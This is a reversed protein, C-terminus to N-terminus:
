TEGEIAEAFEEITACDVAQDLLANLKDRDNVTQLHASVADPVSTFRKNLLRLINERSAQRAAEAKVRQITPSADFIKQMTM